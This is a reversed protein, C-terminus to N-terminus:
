GNGTEDAKEKLHHTPKALQRTHDYRNEPDSAMERRVKSFTGGEINQESILQRFRDDCREMERLHHAPCPIGVEEYMYKIDHLDHMYNMFRRMKEPVEAEAETIYFIVRGLLERITVMERRMDRLDDESSRETTM